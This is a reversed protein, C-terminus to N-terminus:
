AAPAIWMKTMISCVSLQKKDAVSLFALGEYVNRKAELSRGASMYATMAQQASANRLQQYVHINSISMHCYQMLALASGNTPWDHRSDHLISTLLPIIGTAVFHQQIEESDVNCALNLVIGILLDRFRRQKDGKDSNALLSRHLLATLEKFIFEFMSHSKLYQAVRDLAAESATLDLLVTVAAAKVEPVEPLRSSSLQALVRRILDLVTALHQNLLSVGAPLTAALEFVYIACAEEEGTFRPVSECARLVEAYVRHQLLKDALTDYIQRKHYVHALQCMSKLLLLLTFREEPVQEGAFIEKIITGNHIIALGDAKTFLNAPKPKGDPNRTPLNQARNNVEANTINHLPMPIISCSSNARIIPQTKADVAMDALIWKLLAQLLNLAQGRCSRRCPDRVDRLCEALFLWKHKNIYDFAAKANGQSEQVLAVVRSLHESRLKPDLISDNRFKHLLM